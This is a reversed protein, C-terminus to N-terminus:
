FQALIKVIYEFERAHQEVLDREAQHYRVVIGGIERGLVNQVNEPREYDQTRADNKEVRHADRDRRHLFANVQSLPDLPPFRLFDIFLPQLLLFFSLLM